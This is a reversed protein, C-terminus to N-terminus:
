FRSSRAEHMLLIADGLDSYFAGADELAERLGCAPCIPRGNRRSVAPLTRYSASCAPCFQPQPTATHTKREM